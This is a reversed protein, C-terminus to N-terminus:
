GPGNLDNRPPGLRLPAPKRMADQVPGAPDDLAASTGSGRLEDARKTMVAAAEPDSQAAASDLQDAAQSATTEQPNSNSGCAALSTAIIATLALRAALPIPRRM